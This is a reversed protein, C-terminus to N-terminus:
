NTGDNLLSEVYEALKMFHNKVIGVFFNIIVDKVAVVDLWDLMNNYLEQFEEISNMWHSHEYHCLCELSLYQMCIDQVANTKEKVSRSPDVKLMVLSIHGKDRKLIELSHGYVQKLSICLDQLYKNDIHLYKNVFMTFNNKNVRYLKEDRRIYHWYMAIFYSDLKQRILMEMINGLNHVDYEFQKRYITKMGLKPNAMNRLAKILNDIETGIQREVERAEKGYCVLDGKGNGAGHGAQVEKYMKQWDLMRFMGKKLDSMKKGYVDDKGAYHKGNIRFGRDGMRLLMDDYSYFKDYELLFMRYQMMLTFYEDFHDMFWSENECLLFYIRKIVADVIIGLEGEDVPQPSLKGLDGILGLVYGLCEKLEGNSYNGEMNDNNKRLFPFLMEPIVPHIRVAAFGDEEEVIGDELFRDLDDVSIKFYKQLSGVSVRQGNLLSLITIKLRDKSSISQRFVARINNDFSSTTGTKKFKATKRDAPSADKYDQMHKLFKGAEDEGQKKRLALYNRIVMDLLAINGNVDTILEELCQHDEQELCDMGDKWKKGAKLFISDAVLRMEQEPLNSIHIMADESISGSIKKDIVAADVVLVSKFHFGSRSIEEIYNNLNCAAINDWVVINGAEIDRLRILNQKKRMDEINYPLIIRKGDKESQFKLWFDDQRNRLGRLFGSFTKQECDFVYCGYGEAMEAMRNKVFVSKGIFQKGYLLLMNGEYKLQESIRAELIKYSDLDVNYKCATQKPRCVSFHEKEEIILLWTLWQMATYVDYQKDDTNFKEVSIMKRFEKRLEADHANVYNQLNLTKDEIYKSDYTKELGWVHEWASKLYEVPVEREGTEIHNMNMGAWCGADTDFESVPNPINLILPYLDSRKYRIKDLKFANEKEKQSDIRTLDGVQKMSEIIGDLISKRM